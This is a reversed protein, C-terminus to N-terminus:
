YEGDVNVFQSSWAASWGSQCRVVRCGGAQKLVSPMSFSASTFPSSGLGLRVEM